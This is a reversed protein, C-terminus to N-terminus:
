VRVLPVNVKLGPVVLWFTGIVTTLSVVPSYLSVM